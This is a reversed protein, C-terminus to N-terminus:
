MFFIIRTNTRDDLADGLGRLVDATVPRASPFILDYFIRLTGTSIDHFTTSFEQRLGTSRTIIAPASAQYGTPLPAHM